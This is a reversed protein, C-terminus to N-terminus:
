SRVQVDGALDGEVEIEEPLVVILEGKELNVAPVCAKTFPVLSGSDLELSTGAGYDHVLVVQGLTEGEPSLAKLGILDIHYFDDGGVAPLSSRLTYLRRNVVREAATRDALVNGQEDSLAAVGQSVWTVDWRHGQDDFVPVLEELLDPDELVAHLRVLGKVGHPRGITAIHIKQESPSRSM